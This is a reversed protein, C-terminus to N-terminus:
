LRVEIEQLRANMENLVQLVEENTQFAMAIKDGRALMLRESYVVPRTSWALVCMGLTTYHPFSTQWWSLIGVM